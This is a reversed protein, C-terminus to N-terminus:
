RNQRRGGVLSWPSFSSLASVRFGEGELPDAVSGKGDELPPTNLALPLAPGPLAM